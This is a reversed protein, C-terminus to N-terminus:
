ALAERAVDVLMARRGYPLDPYLVGLVTIAEDRDYRPATVAGLLTALLADDAGMVGAARLAADIANLQEDATM